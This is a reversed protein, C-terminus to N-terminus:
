CLPLRRLVLLAGPSRYQNQRDRRPRSNGKSPCLRQDSLCLCWHCSSTTAEKAHISPRPGSRSPQRLEFRTGKCTPPPSGLCQSTVQGIASVRSWVACCPLLGPRSVFSSHEDCSCCERRKYPWHRESQYPTVDALQCNSTSLILHNSERAITPWCTSPGGGRFPCTAYKLFPRRGSKTAPTSAAPPQLKNTFSLLCVPGRTISLKTQCQTIPGCSWRMLLRSFLEAKAM